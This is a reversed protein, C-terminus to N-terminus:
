NELNFDITLAKNIFLIIKKNFDKKARYLYNAMRLTSTVNILEQCKLAQLYYPIKVMLYVLEYLGFM